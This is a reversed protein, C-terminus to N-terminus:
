DRALANRSLRKADVPQVEMLDRPVGGNSQLILCSSGTATSIRGDAFCSYSTFTGIVWQSIVGSSVFIALSFDRKIDFISKQNQIYEYNVDISFLVHGFYDTLNSGSNQINIWGTFNDPLPPSFAAQFQFNGQVCNSYSGSCAPLSFDASTYTLTTIDARASAMGVLMMVLALLDLRVVVWGSSARWRPRMMGALRM